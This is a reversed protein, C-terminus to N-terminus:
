AAASTKRTVRRKKIKIISLSREVKKIIEELAESNPSRLLFKEVDYQLM